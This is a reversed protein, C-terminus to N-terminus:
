NVADGLGGGREGNWLGVEWVRKGKVESEIYLM